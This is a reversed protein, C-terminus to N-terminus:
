VTLLRSKIKQFSFLFNAGMLILLELKFGTERVLGIFAVTTM